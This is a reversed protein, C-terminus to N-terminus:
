RSTLPTILFSCINLAAVARMANAAKGACAAIRVMSPSVTAVPEAREDPLQTDGSPVTVNPLSNKVAPQVSSSKMAAPAAPLQKSMSPLEVAVMVKSKSTSDIM